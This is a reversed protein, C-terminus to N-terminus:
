FSYSLGTVFTTGPALFGLEYYTHNFLNDVRAYVRASHSESDWFRYSAVVGTKSFGPFRFARSEFNVSLPAYISSYRYFDVTTTFKRTWQNTAVATVVHRPVGLVQYFGPVSIDRDTNANTFTYSGSVSLNRTPRAKVAVEAGRSYGGSGNLYGSSRGYPDTMPNIVGTFDFATLHVARTYFFTGSALMRSGFLYQDVGGDFSNYRDPGLRPDGYPSFIVRNSMPDNYFGAGFREYLSPARFANGGHARLKTGTRATFYAISVDGTLARPPNPLLTNGYPNEAGSYQFTPRSLRFIQARGSFSVQLQRNLFTMQSAFYPALSFQRAYTHEIVRYPAVANDDQHDFYHEREFEFGATVGLWSTLQSIGRVDATDIDGVYNGYSPTLPQFGIGVPGNEYVRDTHVRQYSAQWNFRSTVIQRFIFASNLFRSTRRSDPDNLGPVYTSDGYTVPKGALLAQRGAANLAVANIAGIAPLNASPIGDTVPSNNLQVFDDSGWFRGSLTIQPTFDYRAFGQLGTSRNADQGDVGSTVNLHLIGASYKLRDKWAGGAVNGRGRFLGLNGGEAQVQGHIAGGGQDSVINVAGGAANTGYLSSGSGRLIEVHDADVINMASLFSSADSQVTSADRFRLGDVLFATADPRLGRVRMSTLQGPGGSNMIQVGPTTRLLESFAYDNRDTMEEQSVVTLAKSVENLTQPANAATVVVTQNIGAVPLAVDLDRTANRELHVNVTASRFEDKSVNLLYDGPALDEFSYTGNETSTADVSVNTNKRYLQLHAAAINRHQADQVNGRLTIGDSAFLAGACIAAASLLRIM